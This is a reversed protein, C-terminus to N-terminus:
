HPAAQGPDSNSLEARGAGRDHLLKEEFGRYQGSIRGQGILPSWKLSISRHKIVSRFM